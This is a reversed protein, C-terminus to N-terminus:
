KIFLLLLLMLACEIDKGESFFLFLAIGIILIEESELDFRGGKFLEFKDFLASPQFRQFFTSIFGPGTDQRERKTGNSIFCEECSEADAKEFNDKPIESEKIQGVSDERFANGDYNEPISIKEDDQFYSRTYM